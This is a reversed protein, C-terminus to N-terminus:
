NVLRQQHDLDRQMYRPRKQRDTVTERKTYKLRQQRDTVYGARHAFGWQCHTVTERCGLSRQAVPRQQRDTVTERKTYKLRKQCDAM